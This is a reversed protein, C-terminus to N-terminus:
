YQQPALVKPLFEPNWCMQGTSARLAIQQSMSIALLFTKNLLWKINLKKMCKKGRTEGHDCTETSINQVQLWRLKCKISASM